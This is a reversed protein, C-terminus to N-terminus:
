ETRDITKAEHARIADLVHNLVAAPELEGAGPIAERIAKLIAIDTADLGTSYNQEISLQVNAPCLRACVAFFSEPQLKAVRALVDAGNESWAAALDSMFAATFRHRADVIGPPRGNVNGSVGPTWNPNGRKPIQEMKIQESRLSADATRGVVRGV